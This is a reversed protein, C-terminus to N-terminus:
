LDAFRSELKLLPARHSGPDSIGLRIDFWAGWPGLHDDEMGCAKNKAFEYALRQGAIPTTRIAAHEELFVGM